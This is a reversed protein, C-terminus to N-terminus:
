GPPDTGLLLLAALAGLLALATFAAAWWTAPVAAIRVPPADRPAQGLALATDRAVHRRGRLLLVGAVLVVPMTCRFALGLDGRVSGDTLTIPAADSLLGVLPPFAAALVSSSLKLVGFAAGRLAPPVVESTLVTTAPLSGVLLGVAVGQLPLRVPLVPLNDLFSLMFVLAGLVNFVAAVLLAAGEVVGRLRDVAWGGALSGALAGCLVPVGGLTGAQTLSLGSARQHYTVGWFAVASLAGTTLATALVLARLSPIALVARLGDRVTVPAKAASARTASQDPTRAGDGRGGFPRTGDLGTRAVDQPPGTVDQRRHGCDDPLPLVPGDQGGRVPERQRGVLVAVVVGPVALTVVAVRWGFADGLAAGVGLGLAAGVVPMVRQVGYARGRRAPAYYDSVLSQGAPDNVADGVGLLARLAFLQGFSRASGTVAVVAAWGVFTRAILRRRDVRDALVGAPLAVLLGAVIVATDLLGARLDSFVLEDQVLPLVAPLVRRETGEVLGLLALAVLPRRGYPGWGSPAQTGPDLTLASPGPM